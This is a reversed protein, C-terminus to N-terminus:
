LSFVLLTAGENVLHQTNLVADKWPALTSSLCLEALCTLQLLCVAAVGNGHLCVIALAYLARRLLFVAPHLHAVNEPHVM